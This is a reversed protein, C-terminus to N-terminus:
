DWTGSMKTYILIALIAYDKKYNIPYDSSYIWHIAITMYVNEVYILVAEWVAHSVASNNDTQLIYVKLSLIHVHFQSLHCKDKSYAILCGM